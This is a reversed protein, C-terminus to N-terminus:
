AAGQGPEPEPACEAPLEATPEAAALSRGKRRHKPFFQEAERRGVRSILTGYTSELVRAWTQAQQDRDTRALALASKAATIADVAAEWDTIGRALAPLREARLPDDAPLYRELRAILDRYRVSQEDLDADVYHALGKAFVSQYVTDKRKDATRAGLNLEILKATEDIAEDIADRDAIAEQLPYQLDEATRGAQLLADTAALVDAALDLQTARVLRRATYHGMSIRVETGANERPIQMVDEQAAVDV